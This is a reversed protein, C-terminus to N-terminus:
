APDLYQRHTQRYTNVHTNPQQRPRDCVEMQWPVISCLEFLDAARIHRSPAGSSSGRSSSSTTKPGTGDRCLSCQQPVAPPSDTQRDTGEGLAEVEGGKDMEVSPASLGAATFVKDTECSTIYLPRSRYLMRHRWRAMM